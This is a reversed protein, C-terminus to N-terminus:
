PPDGRRGSARYFFPGPGIKVAGSGRSPGRVRLFIEEGLAHCVKTLDARTLEGRECNRVAVRLARSGRLVASVLRELMKAREIRLRLQQLKERPVYKRKRHWAGDRFYRRRLYWYPGHGRSRECHCGKKGCRVYRCELYGVSEPDFLRAVYM